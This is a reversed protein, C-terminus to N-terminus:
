LETIEKQKDKLLDDIKKITKDTLDQVNKELAKLDDETIVSAKQDKKLKDNADRRISRVAVKAEEAKKAVMKVLEQRREQTLEPFVLRIVKGDNSPNLGLDSSQIAKEVAKMMSADWLSITLIRPEPVAINGIQTIPTQTGYYDVMVRNLLQPNARGARINSFENLMAAVSKEMKETATTVAEHVM